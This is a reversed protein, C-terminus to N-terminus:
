RIAGLQIALQSIKEKLRQQDDASLRFEIELCRLPPDDPWRLDRLKVYDKATTVLLGGEARRARQLLTDIDAQNYSHHDGFAVFDIVEAGLSTLTAEFAAPRGLGCFGVVRQGVLQQLPYVAGDPGTLRTPEHRACIIPCVPNYQRLRQQLHHLHDASVNNSRSIIALDARRLATPGERLLGRPLIYGFGFPCTADILVINLDRALRRHQFGDDLVLIDVGHQEVARIGGAVRDALAVVPVGPLAAEITQQEDGPRDPGSKYGRMLVAAQLDAQEILRCLLIVAPTKGTGGCTINGVSIVPVPLYRPSLIRRDYLCNRGLVVLRYPWHCMWLCARLVRAAWADSSLTKELWSQM